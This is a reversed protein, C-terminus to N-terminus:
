PHKCDVSTIQGDLLYNMNAIAAEMDELEEEESDADIQEESAREKQKESEIEDVHVTQSSLNISKWIGSTVPIIVPLEAITNKTNEIIDLSEQVNFDSFFQHGIEQSYFVSPTQDIKCTQKPAVHSLSINCVQEDINMQGDSVMELEQGVMKIVFPQTFLPKMDLKEQEFGQQTGIHADYM